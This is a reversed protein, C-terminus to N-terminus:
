LQFPLTIRKKKSKTCFGLELLRQKARDLDAQLNLGKQKRLLQSSAKELNLRKKNAQPATITGVQGAPGNQIKGPAPQPAVSHTTETGEAGPAPQQGPAQAPSQLRGYGQQTLEDTVTQLDALVKVLDSLFELDLQDKQQLMSQSVSTISDLADQLQQIEQQGALKICKKDDCMVDTEAAVKLLKPLREAIDAVKALFDQPDIVETVGCDSCAPNVVFSNEIFKIGYNYEFAKTDVDFTKTEGKKSGCIPCEDEDGHKHYACKQKKATIPRTKRERIHECYQDPTEAKNHCISCLSYKVQCGMSTNSVAVHNVCYTHDEEIELDYVIGKYPVESISKVRRLIVDDLSHWAASDFIRHDAKKYLLRRHIDKVTSIGFTIEHVPKYGWGNCKRVRYRTRVGLNSLIARFQSALKPSATTLGYTRNKVNWGDGEIYGAVLSALVEKPQCFASEIDLRKQDSYEGCRTFFWDAVDKGYMCVRSQSADPYVQITPKNRHGVFVHELLEATKKALTEAETFGFNFIVSHRVGDRKEYSGEALFLGMLFAEREKITGQKTGFKWARPEILLDNIKLEHAPIKQVYEHEVKQGRTNHGQKFIRNFAQRTLRADKRQPLFEGCGCACIEPLRYVMVNHYATMVLPQDIGETKISLLPHDYARHRTGLVKRPLGKGSIVIDGDEIDCINKETGDSILVPADPPFCGVIYDEKIGRALQPYAEADVRAIIMIGNRDDDWWSHVVKGRAAEADSNNHNTFIPVGVFTGTAAKLETYGFYDGNDNMEDAKIAFCKVFLSDPHSRVEAELDFHTADSDTEMDAEKNSALRMLIENYATKDGKVGQDKFFSYRTPTNLLKPETLVFQARKIHM